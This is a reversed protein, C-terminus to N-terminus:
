AEEVEKTESVIVVTSGKEPVVTVEVKDFGQVAAKRSLGAIEASVATLWDGMSNIQKATLDTGTPLVEPVRSRGVYKIAAAPGDNAPM